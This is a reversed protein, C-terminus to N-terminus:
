EEEGAYQKLKAFLMLRVENKLVDLMLFDQVLSDQTLTSADCDPLQVKCGSMLKIMASATRGEEHLGKLFERVNVPYTPDDCLQHRLQGVLSIHDIELVYAEACDFRVGCQHLVKEFYNRHIRGTAITGGLQSHQTRCLM